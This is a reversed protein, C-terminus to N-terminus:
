RLVYRIGSGNEDSYVIKGKDLTIGSAPTRDVQLFGDLAIYDFLPALQATASAGVASEATVASAIKFGMYKAKAIFQRASTLGGCKSLKVNIGDFLGACRELDDETKWSEDAFLPIKIDKKKMASRIKKMGDRNNVSLPQEILDVGLEVLFPLRQLFTDVNWGGNVDIHFRAATKSRLFRLIEIDSSDGLKLRYISWDPTEKFREEIKDLTDIGLTFSSVPANRAALGWMQYLPRNHMKGWLDCAACDFASQLFPHEKLLPELENRFALPDALAYHEITSRCKEIVDLMEEIPSSYYLDECCEGCGYLGDQDLRIVITRVFSYSRSSIHFVHRLPLDNRVIRLKM